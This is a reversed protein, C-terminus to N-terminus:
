EIKIGDFIAKSFSNISNGLTKEADEIDKENIQQDLLKNIDLRLQDMRGARWPYNAFLKSYEKVKNKIQREIDAGAESLENRRYHENFEDTKWTPNDFQYLLIEATQIARDAMMASVSTGKPYHIEQKEIEEKTWPRSHMGQLIMAAFLEKKTLNVLHKGQLEFNNGTTLYHFKSYRDHGLRDISELSKAIRELLKNLQERM